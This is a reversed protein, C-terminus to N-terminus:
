PQDEELAPESVIEFTSAAPQEMEVIRNIVGLDARADRSVGVVFHFSRGSPEGIM